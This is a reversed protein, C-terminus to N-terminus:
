DLTSLINNNCPDCVFGKPLFTDYNGLSEPMIHEESTFPGTESLCYICRKDAATEELFLNSYREDKEAELLIDFLLSNLHLFGVNYNYFEYLLLPGLPLGALNKLFTAAEDDSKGFYEGNAITHYVHEATINQQDVTIQVDGKNLTEIFKEIQEQRDAGVIEPFADKLLTWINQYFLRDSPNLFRRMLVVLRITGEDDPTEIKAQVSGQNYSYQYSFSGNKSVLAKYIDKTKRYHRKFIQLLLRTANDPFQM